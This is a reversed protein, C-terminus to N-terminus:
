LPSQLFWFFFWFWCLSIGTYSWVLELLAGTVTTHKESGKNQLCTEWPYNCKWKQDTTTWIFLGDSSWEFVRNVSNALVLTIDNETRWESWRACCWYQTRLLGRWSFVLMLGSQFRRNIFLHANKLCMRQAFVCRCWIFDAAVDRVTVWNLPFFVTAASCSLDRPLVVIQLVQM